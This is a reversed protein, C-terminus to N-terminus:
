MEDGDEGEFVGPEVGEFKDLEDGWSRWGPRRTRGFLEVYPGEFLTEIRDYQEDPKRSHERRPARLADLPMCQIFDRVSRAGAPIEVAGFLPLPIWEKKRSLCPPYRMQPNGRTAILCPELNKRSGYGGGFAYRGTAPDYKLWEWALGAFEFGWASLLDCWEPMLPWTVWLLLTCDDAAIIDIPFQWLSEAPACTYHQTANKWEGEKSWNRYLWNPDALITRAGGAPRLEALDKVIRAVDFEPCPYPRIHLTM